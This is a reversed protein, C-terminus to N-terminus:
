FLVIGPILFHLFASVLAGIGIFFKNKLFIRDLSDLTATHVDSKNRMFDYILVFGVVLGSAMPFFDGIFPIGYFPWVMKIMAILIIIFALVIRVGINKFFGDIIKLASIKESLHEAVLILGGITNGIIALFYIQEM